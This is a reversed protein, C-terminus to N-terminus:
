ETKEDKYFYQKDKKDAWAGMIQDLVLMLIAVGAAISISDTLVYAGVCIIIFMVLIKVSLLRKLM